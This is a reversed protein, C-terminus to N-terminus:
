GKKATTVIEEPIEVENLTAKTAEMMSLHISGGQAPIHWVFLEKL